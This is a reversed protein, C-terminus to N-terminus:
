SKKEMNFEESLLSVPFDMIIKKEERNIELVFADVYPIEFLGESTKVVFLTHALTENFGTIKGVLDAKLFIGFGELESLYPEESDVSVFPNEAVYVDSGKVEEALNRNDFNKLKLIWIAKNPRLKEVEFFKQSGFSIEKLEKHWGIEVSFIKLKLEGKIGHADLIKGIKKM